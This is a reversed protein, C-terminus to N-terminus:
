RLPAEYSRVQALRVDDLQALTWERKTLRKKTIEPSDTTIELLFEDANGLIVPRGLAALRDFVESTRRRSTGHRRPLRGSRRWAQRVRDRGFRARLDNGHVHSILARHM